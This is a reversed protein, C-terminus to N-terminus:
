WIGIARDSSVLPRVSNEPSPQTIPADDKLMEGEGSLLWPISVEPFADVIKDVDYSNRKRWRSVLAPSVGVFRAFEADSSLKKYEILKSINLSTNAKINRAM